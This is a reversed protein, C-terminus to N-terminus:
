YACLNSFTYNICCFSSSLTFSMFHSSSIKKWVVAGRWVGDGNPVILTSEKTADTSGNWERFIDTLNTKCIYLHKKKVCTSCSALISALEPFHRSSCQKAKSFRQHIRGIVTYLSDQEHVLFPATIPNKRAWFLLRVLISSRWARTIQEHEVASSNILNSYIKFYDM